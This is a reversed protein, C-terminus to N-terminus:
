HITLIMELESGKDVCILIAQEATIPARSWPIARLHSGAISMSSSSLGVIRCCGM